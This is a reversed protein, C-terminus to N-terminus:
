NKGAQEPPRTDKVEQLYLVLASQAHRGACSGACVTKWGTRACGTVFTWKGGLDTIFMPRAPELRM